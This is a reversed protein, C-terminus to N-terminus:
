ALVVYSNFAVGNVSQEGELRKLAEPDRLDASNYIFYGLHRLHPWKTYLLIDQAYEEVLRQQDRPGRAFKVEVIMGLDEIAVDARRSIGSGPAM